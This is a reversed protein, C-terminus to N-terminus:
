GTRIAEAAGSVEAVEKTVEAQRAKNMLLTLDQILEMANDTANSMAMMRASHESALSELLAHYITFEVYRPLLDSLVLEPNDPEYEWPAASGAGEPPIVPLIQVARPQQRLTNIFQTYVLYVLDTSGNSFDDLVSRAIPTVQAITTDDGLGTYEAVLNMRTRAAFDRGKKGVAVIRAPHGSEQVVRLTERNINSVLAGALGRDPTITVLEIAKVPRQALLPHTSAGVKAGVDAVIQSIYDSYPRSATVRMQARRMRAAAVLQMAKTIKATNRISKIRRQLDRRSAM